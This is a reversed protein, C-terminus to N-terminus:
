LIEKAIKKIIEKNKKNDEDVFATLFIIKKNSRVILTSTYDHGVPDFYAGEGIGKILTKDRLKTLMSKMSEAASESAEKKQSANMNKFKEDEVAKKAAEQTKQEIEEDTIEKMSPSFYNKNGEYDMMYITVLYNESMAQLKTNMDTLAMTAFVQKEYEEDTLREWTYSCKAPAFKGQDETATRKIQKDVTVYKKIDAESLLGCPKQQYEDLKSSSSTTSKTEETISTDTSSNQSEDNKGENGCGFFLFTLFALLVFSNLTALKM